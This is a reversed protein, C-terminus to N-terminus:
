GGILFFGFSTVLYLIGIQKHDTTWFVRLFASGRPARGGLATPVATPRVDLSM